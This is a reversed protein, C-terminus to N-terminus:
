FSFRPCVRPVPAAAVAEQPQNFRSIANGIGGSRGTDIFGKRQPKEIPSGNAEAAKNQQLALERDIQDKEERLRKQEAARRQDEEEKAKALNEFKARLNSPKASGISFM